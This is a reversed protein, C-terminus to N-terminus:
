NGPVVTHPAAITTHLRASSHRPTGGTKASIKSTEIEWGSPVDPEVQQAGIEAVVSQRKLMVEVSVAEAEWSGAEDGMTDMTGRSTAVVAATTAEAVTIVAERTITVAERSTITGAACATDGVL